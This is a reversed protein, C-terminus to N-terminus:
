RPVFPPYEELDGRLHRALLLAQVHPLIGIPVKEQLFPHIVTEQKREQFAVLIKKRGDDKFKVAGSAEVEFDNAKIQKRNILSLVLRDVLWARFEELIDQALSDRGPRDQHLFGVQPDLGVGQLAASIDNGVVSYLFSLMANTPDLPPRRTRKSFAFEDQVSPLM